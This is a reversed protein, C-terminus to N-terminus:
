ATFFDRILSFEHETLSDRLKNLARDCIQRVREKSVGLKKGLASYTPKTEFESFGFRAELVFREREDLDNLRRRISKSLSKLEREKDARVPSPDVQGEFEKTTGTTYRSRHQHRQNILRFLERRVAMTAYTSFRFGRSYDFKEVAKLLCSTGESLLDDFPNEDTKFKKAISVVLRTNATVIHNRLEEARATLRDIEELKQRNPRKANLTSRIVNARYKLYNMRRFLDAEEAASLLPTSCLRDLHAPMGRSASAKDTANGNNLPRSFERRWYKEADMVRFEPSCIFAIEKRLAAITRSREAHDTKLSKSERRSLESVM